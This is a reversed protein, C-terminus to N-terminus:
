AASHPQPLELDSDQRIRVPPAEFLPGLMVIHRIHATVTRDLFDLIRIQPALRGLLERDEHKVMLPDFNCGEVPTQNVM